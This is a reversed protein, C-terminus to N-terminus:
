HVIEFVQVAGHTFLPKTKEEVRVFSREKLLNTDSLVVYSVKELYPEIVTTDDILKERALTFGKQDMLYLSINYSQDPISLVKDERSIGHARLAPTINELNEIDNGYSWFLYKALNKEDESIFPFWHVMKDDEITRLRYVAAAHFSNFVVVIVTFLRVFGPNFANAVPGSLLVAACFLTIVPFIFINILYYDHVGFVQFFLLLFILFYAGTDSPAPVSFNGSLDTRGFSYFISDKQHVINVIAGNLPTGEETIVRGTISQGLAHLSITLYLISVFLVMAVGGTETRTTAAPYFHSANYRLMEKKKDM